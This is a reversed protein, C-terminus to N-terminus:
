LIKKNKIKITGGIRVTIQCCGKENNNQSRGALNNHVGGGGGDWTFMLRGGQGEPAIVSVSICLVSPWNMYQTEVVHEYM